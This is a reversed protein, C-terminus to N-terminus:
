TANGHKGHDFDTLVGCLERKQMGFVMLTDSDSFHTLHVATLGMATWASLSFNFHQMIAPNLGRDKLQQYTVGMEYLVTSSWGMSWLEGLDAQMDTLPNIPFITMQPLDHLTLQGRKIWATKDPQITKLQVPTFQLESILRKWSWNDKILDEWAVIYRPQDWYGFLRISQAATVTLM